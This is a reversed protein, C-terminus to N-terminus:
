PLRPHLLHLSLKPPKHHAKPLMQVQRALPQPIKGHPRPPVLNYLLLLTIENAHHTSLFAVSSPIPTRPHLSQTQLEVSADLTNVLKFKMITDVRYREM